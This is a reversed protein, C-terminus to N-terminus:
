SQSSSLENLRLKELGARGQATLIGTFFLNLVNNIAEHASFSEESLVTPNIVNRISGLVVLLFIRKNVDSGSMDRKSARTSWIRSSTRYETHASNKSGNGSIPPM